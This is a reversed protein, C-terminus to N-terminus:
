GHGARELIIPGAGMGPLMAKKNARLGGNKDPPLM